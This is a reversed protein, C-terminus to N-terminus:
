RSASISISHSIHWLFFVALCAAHVSVIYAVFAMGLPKVAYDLQAHRACRSIRDGDNFLHHRQGGTMHVTRLMVNHHSRRQQGRIVVCASVNIKAACQRLHHISSPANGAASAAKPTSATCSDARPHKHGDNRLRRRQGILRKCQGM